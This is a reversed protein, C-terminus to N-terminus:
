WGTGLGFGRSGFPPLPLSFLFLGQKGQPAERRSKAVITHLLCFSGVTYGM